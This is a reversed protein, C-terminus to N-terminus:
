WSDNQPPRQPPHTFGPPQEIQKGMVTLGSHIWMYMHRIYIYIYIYNIHMM